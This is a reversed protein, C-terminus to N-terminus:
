HASLAHWLPGTVSVVTESDTFSLYQLCMCDEWDLASQDQVLAREAMKMVLLARKITLWNHVATTTSGRPNFLPVRPGWLLVQLMATMDTMQSESEGQLLSSLHLLGKQYSSIYPASDLSPSCEQPRLCFKILDAIQFKISALPPPASPASSSPVLVVHPSGQTRWLMQVRGKEETKEWEMEEKQSSTKSGKLAEQKTKDEGTETERSSWVLLIEQPRLEAASASNKYLHHSGMLIQLLLSCVQRDYDLREASQLPRSERVFDELTAHPLDREVSVAHGRLLFSQVDPVSANEPDAGYETSSGGPPTAPTCDPPSASSATSPQFYAIIDQVNVHPPQNKVPAPSTEDAQKHVQLSILFVHRLNCLIQPM